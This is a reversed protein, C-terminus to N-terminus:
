KSIHRFLRTSKLRIPLIKKKQFFTVEKVQYEKYMLFHTWYYGSMVFAAGLVGWILAGSPNKKLLRWSILEDLRSKHWENTSSKRPDCVNM